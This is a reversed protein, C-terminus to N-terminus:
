SGACFGRISAGPIAKLEEMLGGPLIKSSKGGIDFVMDYKRCLYAAQALYPAARSWDPMLTPHSVARGIPMLCSFKVGRVGLQHLMEIMASLSQYNLATIVINVVFRAAPFFSLIHKMGQIVKAHSGQVQTIFDHVKPQHSHVSTRVWYIEHSFIEKAYAKSSFKLANTYLFIQLGLSNALHLCDALFPATTPEGGYFEIANFGEDSACQIKELAEERAMRHGPTRDLHPGSMCILCQHNCQWFDLSFMEDFSKSFPQNM